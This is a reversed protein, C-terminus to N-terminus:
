HSIQEMLRHMRLVGEQLFELPTAFPQDPPHWLGQPEVLFQISHAAIELAGSDERLQMRDLTDYIRDAIPPHVRSPQRARIEFTAVWIVGLVVALARQELEKEEGTPAQGAPRAEDSTRNGRLWDAAQFDAQREEIIKDVPVIAGHGLMIHALEHRLIWALAGYFLNNGNRSHQDTPSPLPPPAGEVWLTKGQENVLDQTCLLKALDHAAMGAALDSEPTIDLRGRGQRHGEYMLRAIRAFAQSSAWLSAIGNWTIRVAREDPLAAFEALTATVTPKEEIELRIDRAAEGADRKAREFRDRIDAEFPLFFRKCSM